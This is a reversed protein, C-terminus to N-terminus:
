FRSLCSFFSIEGLYKELIEKIGYAESVPVTTDPINHAMYVPRCLSVSIWGGKNDEFWGCLHKWKQKGDEFWVFRWVDHLLYVFVDLDGQYDEAGFM